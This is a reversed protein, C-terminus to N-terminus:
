KLQLYTVYRSFATAGSVPMERQAQIAELHLTMFRKKLHVKRQRLEPYGILLTGTSRQNLAYWISCDQFGWVSFNEKHTGARQQEHHHASLERRQLANNYRPTLNSGACFRSKSWPTSIAWLDHGKHYWTESWRSFAAEEMRPFAELNSCNGAVKTFAAPPFFSYSHLLEERGKEKLTTFFTM